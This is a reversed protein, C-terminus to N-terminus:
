RKVKGIGQGNMLSEVEDVSLFAFDGPITHKLVAAATAFNLTEEPQQQILFGRIIGAAFADGTGIRDVSVTQYTSSKFVTAGNSLRASYHNVGMEDVERDTFAVWQLNYKAALATLAEDGSAEVGFFTSADAESGLFIDVSPLVECFVKKAEDLSWLQSRYSPDFSIPIKKEKAVRLGEFLLNRTGPGVLATGTFHFLGANKLFAEWDIMGPELERFSTADRDYIVQSGRQGAGSEVYLIGLRNGSRIVSDTNVGYRRLHNLCMEGLDNAPVASAISTKLGWQQLAVAVNAEGGTFTLGFSSAQVFRQHGPTDLRLLLEGFHAVNKHNGLSM